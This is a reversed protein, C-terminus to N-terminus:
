HAHITSRKPLGISMSGDPVEVWIETGRGPTSHLRFQGRVLKVRENMSLLGLGQSSASSDFGIGSDQITMYITNQLKTLTVAVELAHAHKLANNLSEQAVRYLCLAVDESVPDEFEDARLDVHFNPQCIKRSLDKLAANLGLHQLKYSHLNHSMQHVDSCLGDLEDRLVELRSVSIPTTDSHQSALLAVESAALSLRQGIDDHLERSLHKRENEQSQILQSALLDIEVQRRRLEDEKVHHETLDEITMLIRSDELPHQEMLHLEIRAPILSSDKRILDIECLHFQAIMQGSLNKLLSTKDCQSALNIVDDCRMQRLQCESYGLLCHFAANALVFQGSHTLTAMPTTSSLFLRRFRETTAESEEHALKRQYSNSLVNELLTYHEVIGDSWDIETSTSLLVMLTKGLLLSNSPLLALSRVGCAKLSQQDVKASAPLDSLSEIIVAKDARLLDLCWPLGDLGGSFTSQASPFECTSSLVEVLSGSEGLSFWGAQEAGEIQMLDAIARQSIKDIENSECEALKTSTRLIVGRTEFSQQRRNTVQQLPRFDTSLM